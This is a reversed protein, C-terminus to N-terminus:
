VLVHGSGKSRWRPYKSHICKNLKAYWFDTQREWKQFIPQTGKEFRGRWHVYCLRGQFIWLVTKGNEFDCKGMGQTFILRTRGRFFNRFQSLSNETVMGLKHMMLIEGTSLAAFDRRLNVSFWTEMGQISFWDLRVQFFIPLQTLPNETLTDLQSKTLIERTSIVEFFPKEVRLILNEMWQTSFWDLWGSFFYLLQPLTNKTLMGLKSRMLIERDFDRWFVTKGNEFDSKGNGSHFILRTMGRFFNSLQTLSNEMLRGLKFMMAIKWTSFLEFGWNEM